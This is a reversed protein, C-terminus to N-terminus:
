QPYSFYKKKNQNVTFTVSFDFNTKNKRKNIRIYEVIVAFM